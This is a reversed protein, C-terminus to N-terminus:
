REEAVKAGERAAEEVEEARAELKKRGEGVEAPTGVLQARRSVKTGRDEAVEVAKPM